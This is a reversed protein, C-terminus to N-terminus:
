LPPGPLTPDPIGLRERELVHRPGCAWESLRQGCNGCRPDKELSLGHAEIGHAAMAMLGVTTVPCRACQYRQQKVVRVPRAERPKM